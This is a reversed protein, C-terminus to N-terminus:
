KSKPTASATVLEVIKSCDADSMDRKPYAAIKGNQAFIIIYSDDILYHSKELNITWSNEESDGMLIENESFCATLVSDSGSRKAQKKIAAEPLFWVAVIMAACLLAVFGSLPNNDKFFGILNVVICVAFVATYIWKNDATKFTKTAKLVSYVDTEKLAYEIKIGDNNM